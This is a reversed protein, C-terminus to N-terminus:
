FLMGQGLQHVGLSVFLHVFLRAIVRDVLFVWHEGSVRRIVPSHSMAECKFFNALKFKVELGLFTVEVSNAYVAQAM